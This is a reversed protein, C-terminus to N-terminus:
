CTLVVVAILYADVCSRVDMLIPYQRVWEVFQSNTLIGGIPVM